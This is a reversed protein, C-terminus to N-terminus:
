KGFVDLLHRLEEEVQNPNEVTHEVEDRLLDRFRQRLRHVAVKIAGENMGLREGMEAYTMESQRGWVFQQLQEYVRARGTSNYDQSLRGLVRELLAEAWRRDYLTDPSLEELPEISYRSEADEFNFSVVSEGGRKQRNARRWEETLFHKLSSLLFTRFRGRDRNALAFYGRALFRAFFEQTLDQADEPSNGQRRAFSYLPFWYTQCLSDLAHRISSSSGHGAALVVSWNTTEFVGPKFVTGVDETM